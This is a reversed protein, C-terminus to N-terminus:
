LLVFLGQARLANPYQAVDLGGHALGHRSHQLIDNIQLRERTLKFESYPPSPAKRSLM